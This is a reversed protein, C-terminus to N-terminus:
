RQWLNPITQGTKTHAQFYSISRWFTGCSLYSHPQILFDRLPALIRVMAGANWIDAPYYWPAKFVVEPAQFTFPQITDEYCDQGFRAEGFDCLVPVGLFRKDEPIVQGVGDYIIRDSYIKRPSPRELELAELNQFTTQDLATLSFNEARVDQSLDCCLFCQLFLSTGCHVMKAKTHLFELARFVHFAIAQFM